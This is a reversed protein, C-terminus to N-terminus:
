DGKAITILQGVGNAVTALTAETIPQTCVPTIQVRIADVRAVTSQNIIRRQRLVALVNLTDAYTQCLTIGTRQITASASAQQETATTGRCAGLAITAVLALGLFVKRM